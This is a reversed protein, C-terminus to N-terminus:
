IIYVRIGARYDRLVTIESATESTMNWHNPQIETPIESKDDWHNPEIETPLDSAEVNLAAIEIESPMDSHSAMKPIEIESEVESHLAEIVTIETEIGSHPKIEIESKLEDTGANPLTKFYELILQPAAKGERSSFSFAQKGNQLDDVVLMFAYTDPKNNWDSFVSTVDFDVISGAKHPVSFEGLFADTPMKLMDKYNISMEKWEYPVQYVKIKVDENTSRNVHLRLTAKQIEEYKFYDYSEDRKIKLSSLDFGLTSRFAAAGQTKGAYIDEIAGFNVSATISYGTADKVPAEDEVHIQNPYVKGHVEMISPKGQVYIETPMDSASGVIIESELDSAIPNQYFSITEMQNTANVMMETPLMSEGNHVVFIESPVDSRGGQSANTIAEMRAKTSVYITSEIADQSARIVEMESPVHSDVYHQTDAVSTLMKNAFPITIESPLSDMSERVVILESPLNEKTKVITSAKTQMQQSAVVAIESVLDSNSHVLVEIESFVESTKMASREARAEMAAGFAQISIETELDSAEQRVVIMETAMDSNLNSSADSVAQLRSDEIIIISAPIDDECKNAVIIGSPVDHAKNKKAVELESKIANNGNARIYLETDIGVSGDEKIFLESTLYKNVWNKVIIESAVDIKRENQVTVESELEEIKNNAVTIGSPLRGDNLVRVIMDAPIGDSQYNMVTIESPMNDQRHNKVTIESPLQSDYVVDIGSEIESTKKFWVFMDSPIQSECKRAVTIDAPLNSTGTEVVTIESQIGIKDHVAVTMEGWLEQHYTPRIDVEMGMAINGLNYHFNEETYIQPYYENLRLIEGDKMSFKVEKWRNNYCFFMLYDGDAYTGPIVTSVGSSMSTMLDTPFDSPYMTNGYVSPWYGLPMFLYAESVLSPNADYFIELGEKHREIGAVPMTNGDADRILMEKFATYQMNLAKM